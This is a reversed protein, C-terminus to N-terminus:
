LLRQIYFVLEVISVLRGVVRICALANFNDLDAEVQILYTLFRVLWFEALTRSFLLFNTNLRFRTLAWLFARHNPLEFLDLPLGLHLDDSFFLVIFASVLANYIM